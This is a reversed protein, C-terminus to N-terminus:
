GPFKWIGITCGQFSGGLFPLFFTAGSRNFKKLWQFAMFSGSNSFCEAPHELMQKHYKNVSKKKVLDFSSCIGQQDAKARIPKPGEAWNRGTKRVVEWATLPPPTKLSSTFELLM